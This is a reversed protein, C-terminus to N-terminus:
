PRKLFNVKLRNNFPKPCLCNRRKIGAKICDSLFEGTHEGIAFYADEVSNGEDWFLLDYSKLYKKIMPYETLIERSELICPLKKRPFISPELELNEDLWEVKPAEQWRDQLWFCDEYSSRMALALKDYSEQFSSRGLPIAELRWKAPGITSMKVIFIPAEAKEHLLHPLRTCPTTAGFFSILSGRDGIKQDSLISVIGNKKLCKLLTYVPNRKSILNMGAKERRRVILADLLPNNLPRYLACSITGEPLMETFKTLVEWNGMHSLKLVVGSEKLRDNIKDFGVVELYNELQNPKIKYAVITTLINAINRRFVREVEESSPEYLEEAEGLVVKLNRRVILRYRPSLRYFISGLLEGLGFVAEISFISLLKECLRYVFYEARWKLKKSARVKTSKKM